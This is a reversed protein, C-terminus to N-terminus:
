PGMTFCQVSRAQLRRCALDAQDQTLGVFTADYEGDRAVVKRLSENLSVTESLATKLLQREAGARSPYRGVNIGWQRGGSTSIRAVVQPAAVPIVAAPDADAYM